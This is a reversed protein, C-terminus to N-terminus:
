CESQSLALYLFQGPPPDIAFQLFFHRFAGRAEFEPMLSPQSTFDPASAVFGVVKVVRVVQDLDGIVSKM